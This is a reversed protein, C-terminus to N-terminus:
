SACSYCYDKLNLRDLEPLAWNAYTLSALWPGREKYEPTEIQEVSGASIPLSPCIPGAFVPVGMRAAEVGAASGYTVVAWSERLYEALPLNKDRKVRVPRETVQKLTALTQDLWADAGFIDVHYRSPPIVVVDLGSKRWPAVSVNWKEFRDTPRELLRTLHFGRRILRFNTSRSGRKFYANDLYLFDLGELVYRKLEPDTLGAFVKIGSERLKLEIADWIEWKM